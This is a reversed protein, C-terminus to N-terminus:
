PAARRRKCASAASPKHLGSEQASPGNLRAPEPFQVLSWPAARHYGGFPRPAQVPVTAGASAPVLLDLPTRRRRHRVCELANLWTGRWLGARWLALAALLVLFGLLIYFELKPNPYHHLLLMHNM